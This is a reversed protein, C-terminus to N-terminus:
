FYNIGVKSKRELPWSQQNGKMWTFAKVLQILSILTTCIASSIFGLAITILINLVSLLTMGEHFNTGVWSIMSTAKLSGSTLCCTYIWVIKKRSFVLFEYVLCLYKRVIWTAETHSFKNRFSSLNDLYVILGKHGQIM